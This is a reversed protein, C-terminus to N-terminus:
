KLIKKGYYAGRAKNAKNGVNRGKVDFTRKTADPNMKFEGTRTNFQGIVTTHEENGDESDIVISMIEPLEEQVVSPRRVYAGNARALQAMKDNRVLYARMPRIWAGAGVKVFDGVNILDNGSGATAAAFGYAFGTEPDSGSAGWEKYKWTGRFTWGDLTKEALGTKVLTLPYAAANITFTPENMLLMYPTNASMNTHRYSVGKGNKDKIYGDEAWLVKMRIYSKGYNPSSKDDEVRIGNYYLM